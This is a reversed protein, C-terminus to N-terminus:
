ILYRGVRIIAQRVGSDAPLESAAEVDQCLTSFFDQGAASDETYEATPSPPYFGSLILLFLCTHPFTM